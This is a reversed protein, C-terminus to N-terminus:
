KNKKDPAQTLASGAVSKQDPTSKKDKLQESAKSAVGKSTKEDKAMKKGEFIPPNELNLVRGRSYTYAM